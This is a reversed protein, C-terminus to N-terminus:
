SQNRAWRDTLWLVFLQGGLLGAGGVLTGVVPNGNRAGGPLMVALGAIIVLSLAFLVPLMWVMLRRPAMRTPEGDLGYHGPLEDFRSYRKAAWFGSYILASVFPLAVAVPAWREM